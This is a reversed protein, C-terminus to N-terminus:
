TTRRSTSASVYNKKKLLQLDEKPKILLGKAERGKGLGDDNGARFKELTEACNPASTMQKRPEKSQNRLQQELNGQRKQKERKSRPLGLEDHSMAHDIKVGGQSKVLDLQPILAHYHKVCMKMHAKVLARNDKESESVTDKFLHYTARLYGMRKHALHRLRPVEASLVLHPKDDRSDKNKLLDEIMIKFSRGRALFYRAFVPFVVEREVLQEELIFMVTEIAGQQLLSGLALSANQKVESDIIFYTEALYGTDSGFILSALNEKDSGLSLPAFNSEGGDNGMGDVSAQVTAPVHREGTEGGASKQSFKGKKKPRVTLSHSGAIESIDESERNDSLLHNATPDKTAREWAEIKVEAHGGCGGSPVPEQQIRGEEHETQAAGISGKLRTEGSAIMAAVLGPTTKRASAAELKEKGVRERPTHKNPMPHKLNNAVPEVM